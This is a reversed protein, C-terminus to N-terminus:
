NLMPKSAIAAFEAQAARHASILTGIVVKRREENPEHTLICGIALSIAENLAAEPNAARWEDHEHETM